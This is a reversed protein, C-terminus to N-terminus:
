LHGIKWQDLVAQRTQIHYAFLHLQIENQILHAAWGIKVLLYRGSDVMAM